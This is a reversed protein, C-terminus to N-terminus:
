VSRGVRKLRQTSIDLRHRRAQALREWTEAMEELQQRHAPSSTRAVERCEAANQYYEEVKKVSVSGMDLPTPALLGDIARM